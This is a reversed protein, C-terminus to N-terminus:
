WESAAQILADILNEADCRGELRCSVVEVRGSKPDVCLVAEVEGDDEDSFGSEVYVLGGSVKWRSGQGFFALLGQMLTVGEAIEVEQASRVVAQWKAECHEVWRVVGCYAALLVGFAGYCWVAIKDLEDM